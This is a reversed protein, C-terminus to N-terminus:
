RAFEKGIELSSKLCQMRDLIQGPFGSEAPCILHDYICGREGWKTEWPDAPHLSHLLMQFSADGPQLLAFM